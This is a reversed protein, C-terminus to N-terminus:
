PSVTPWTVNVLSPSPSQVTSECSSMLVSSLDKSEGTTASTSPITASASATALSIPESTTPVM